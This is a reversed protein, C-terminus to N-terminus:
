PAPAASAPGTSPGGDGGGGGGGRISGLVTLAQQRCSSPVGPALPPPVRAVARGSPSRGLAAPGASLPQLEAQQEGQRQQQEQQVVLPVPVATSRRGSGRHQQQREQNRQWREAKQLRTAAAAAQQQLGKEGDWSLVSGSDLGAAAWGGSLAVCQTAAGSGGQSGSFLLRSAAVLRRKSSAGSAAKGLGAKSSGSSRGGCSGQLSATGAATAAGVHLLLVNGALDGLALWPHEYSLCAVEAAQQQLLVPTRQSSNTSSSGSGSRSGDALWVGGSRTGLFVNRGDETMELSLIAGAAASADQGPCALTAVQRPQTGEGLSYVRAHKSCAAALTSGRLAM